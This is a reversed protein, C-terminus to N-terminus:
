KISRQFREIADLGDSPGSVHQADPMPEVGMVHRVVAESLRDPDELLSQLATRWRPDRNTSYGFEARLAGWLVDTYVKHMMTVPASPFALGAGAMDQALEPDGRMDREREAVEGRSASRTVLIALGPEPAFPLTAATWPQHKVLVDVAPTESKPDVMFVTVPQEQPDFDRPLSPLWLLWQAPGGGGDVRSLKLRRYDVGPAVPGAAAVERAVVHAIQAGLGDMAGKVRRSAGRMARALAKFDRDVEIRIM